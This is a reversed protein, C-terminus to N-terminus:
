RGGLVVVRWGPAAGSPVHPSGMFAAGSSGHPRTAGSRRSAGRAGAHVGVIVSLWHDNLCKVAVFVWGSLALYGYVILTQLRSAAPLRCEGCLVVVVTRPDKTRLDQVGCTLMQAEPPGREPIPDASLPPDGPTRTDRGTPASPTAARPCPALDNMAHPAGGQGRGEARKSVLEGVRRSVRVGGRGAVLWGGRTGNVGTM